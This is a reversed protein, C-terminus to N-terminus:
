KLVEEIKTILLASDPTFGFHKKNETYLKIYPRCEKLLEKLRANEQSYHKRLNSYRVIARETLKYESYDPVPSIVKIKDRDKTLVYRCLAYDSLTEIEGDPMQVYYFGKPLEHKRFKETLDAM